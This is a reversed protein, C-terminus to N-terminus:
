YAYSSRIIENMRIEEYNANSNKTIENMHIKEGYNVNSNTAMLMVNMEPTVVAM